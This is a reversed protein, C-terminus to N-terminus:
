EAEEEGEAEAAGGKPIPPPEIGAKSAAECGRDVDTEGEEETKIVKFEVRRNKEWAEPNSAADIPCYEGYGQSLLRSRVIGRSLLANVVSAARAATLRNNHAYSGREDAHGAVEVVLFEPHGKLTGAVEDLIGDSAPLIKASNTEFQVKELIIIEDEAVIVRSKDPCGDEDEHGNYTEPDNPCKDKADPIRDKDNDSEPCGDEDEFGDLDEPVDPCSDEVDPIGDKDNDPDPCGDEDQFGDRDEPDDPCKDRSDMIGDGDRDGDDGEPCGDDDEDGDRDEPINPCADDVDLIGDNDNDPEPCGDEDQFGDFDEPDDPCEDEDDYIGDGDRDGISPEFVFGLVGRTDAAEFGTSFARSGAGIMLYSNKEIFLKIGGLLEQSLKQKDDSEGETLYTGYTEAVIELTEFPRIGIGGGFTALNGYELVGEALQEVAQSNLGFRPNDGSHGRYGGEVAIRLWPTEGFDNELVLRPWYWVGPDSGLDRQAGTPIGVQGIIAIGPGNRVRTLRLKAHAVLASLAEAEMPQSDYTAGTPGIDNAADGTMLVIPLAIGLVLFNAVGYNVKFTGQFSDEVLANVGVDADDNTRMLNSGYDLVLGFSFRNAGLIDTGNVSFLGKSDIAPRFLHTDMGDGNTEAVRHEEQAHAVGGWAVLLALGCGAASWRPGRVYDAGM